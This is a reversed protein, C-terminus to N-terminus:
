QITKFIGQSKLIKELSRIEGLFDEKLVDVSEHFDKRSMENKECYWKIMEESPLDLKKAKDTKKITKAYVWKPTSNYKDSMELHWYYDTVAEPNIKLHSLMNAQVPYQISMFRNLMFFNRTKDITRLAKWEKEKKSFVLAIYDFLQIM